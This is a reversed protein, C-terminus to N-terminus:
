SVMSTTPLLNISAYHRRCGFRTATAPSLYLLALAIPKSCPLNLSRRSLSPAPEHRTQTLCGRTTRMSHVKDRLYCLVQSSFARQREVVLWGLAVLNPERDNAAFRVVNNNAPVRVLCCSESREVHLMLMLILTLLSRPSLSSSPSLPLTFTIRLSNFSQFGQASLVVLMLVLMTFFLIPEGARLM